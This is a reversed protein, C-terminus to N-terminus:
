ADRERAVNSQTLAQVFDIESWFEISQGRERYRWATVAKEPNLFDDFTTAGRFRDGLVLLSTRRTVDDKPTGGAAAVYHWAEKRVMCSLGGTFVITQGYFPNTQDADLNATPRTECELRPAPMRAQTM